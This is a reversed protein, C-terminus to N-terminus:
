ILDAASTSFFEELRMGEGGVLYARTEPHSKLFQDVGPLGDRVRGSKVEIAALRGEKEV